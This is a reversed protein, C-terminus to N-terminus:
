GHDFMLDGQRRTSSRGGVGRGAEFLTLQLGNSALIQAASCGALGGGVIAVTPKPSSSSLM